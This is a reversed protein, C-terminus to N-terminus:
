SRPKRVVTREGVSVVPGLGDVEAVAPQGLRAVVQRAQSSFTELYRRQAERVITDAVLSSKGSGSVGTVVVLAQRPLRLDVHKLNNAFADRITIWETSATM